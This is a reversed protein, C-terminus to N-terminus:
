NRKGLLRVGPAPEKYDDASRGGDPIEIWRHVGQECQQVVPFYVITGPSGDPLYARFVFEDYHEDLLHGGTWSIERVGKTLTEDFYKYPKTYEGTVTALQWGPKPMPKVAIVGEPIQVRIATTPSGACGHPVRLVAKYTSAAPAERTELTVHAAAPVALFAAAALAAAAIHRRM